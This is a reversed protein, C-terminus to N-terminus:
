KVSVHFSVASNCACPTTWLQINNATRVDADSQRQQGSARSLASHWPPSTHVNRGSCQKHWDNPWLSTCETSREKKLTKRSATPISYMDSIFYLSKLCLSKKRWINKKKKEQWVSIVFALALFLNEKAQLNGLYLSFGLEETPCRLCPLPQDLASSATPPLTWPIAGAEGMRMVSCQAHFDTLWCSRSQLILSSLPNLFVIQFSFRQPEESLRLAWSHEGSSDHRTQSYLAM